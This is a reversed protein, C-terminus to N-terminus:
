AAEEIARAVIEAAARWTPLREAAAWAGSALRARAAGNGVVRRLADSLAATDDPPVLIGAGEPVTGPIAGATTGIVPLGRAMAEAFAMGYGEFRSALVFVDASDYLEALRPTPAAGELSIRAGLGLAAIQAEIRRATDEDRRNGAITLRWDLDTITSLAKLLVDYGKRPVLSGVALLHVVDSGSGKARPARDTGPEAVAIRDMPVDYDAVLVRATAFSTTVVRRAHALAQRESGRLAEAEAAALGSELALPHHVLAILPRHRSLEAAADPLVGLALGDVVVPIGDRLEALRDRAAARTEADPRPFGEGLDVVAVRWGLNILEGVLRRDYAYGGTPTDLSGPVAFVVERVV